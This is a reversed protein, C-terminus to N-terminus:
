GKLATAPEGLSMMLRNAWNFFASSNILDVIEADDLGVRRLEQLHEPGFSIPTSALAVSARVVASWREGLDASVGEDLM